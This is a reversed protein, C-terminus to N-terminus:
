QRNVEGLFAGGATGSACDARLVVKVGFLILMEGAAEAPPFVGRRSGEVGVLVGERVREPRLTRVEDSTEHEHM